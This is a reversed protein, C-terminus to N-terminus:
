APPTEATPFASISAAAQSAPIITSRHGLLESYAHCDYDYCPCAAHQLGIRDMVHIEGRHYRILGADQLVGAEHTVGARRVGLVHALFEHTVHFTSAQARDQSMLLWRALRANIRHSRQCAASHALQTMLVYLYRKMLRQLEPSLALESAFAATSMRLAAGPGQVVAHLPATPVGLALTAGLMGEHGIMGVEVGNSSRVRAILSIFADAPFYVHRTVEGPECLIDSFALQITEGAAILRKRHKIPLLLLLHNERTPM